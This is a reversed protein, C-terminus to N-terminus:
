INIQFGNYTVTYVTGQEMERVIERVVREDHCECEARIGDPFIAKIKYM